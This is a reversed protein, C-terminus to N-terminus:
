NFISALISHATDSDIDNLVGSKLLTEAAKLKRDYPRTTMQYMHYDELKKPMLKSRTSRRPVPTPPKRPLFSAAAIDDTDEPAEKRISKTAERTKSLIEPEAVRGEDELPELPESIVVDDLSEDVHTDSIVIKDVSVDARTDPHSEITGSKVDIVEVIDVIDEIGEVIGGPDHERGDTVKEVSIDEGVKGDEVSGTGIALHADGDLNTTVVFDDECDCQEDEEETVDSEDEVIDNAVKGEDIPADQICKKVNKEQKSTITEEAVLGDHNEIVFLLNRHLTRVKDGLRIKFVPIEPIPQEEVTYVEEEYRDEIKHKGDFAMRRVLVKDGIVINVAKAKRDYFKKQKSKSKETHERVIERTKQMRQQLDKLFERTAKNGSTEQRASEFVSDIPLKPRRGFMLEYPAIKTTEHPTSNYAFTLSSVYKKWNEKQSSELTGLMDLLTRNFREPGANGQPHYPTTRSKEMNTLKCLEKIIESEFNAGQDSHIRTPIGYNVIFQNYFVEATTKATQNKTPIALAYKTYHDTIVLINGIGRAPELTLFDMCVLQLPYTTTVSHLPARQSIKAKRRLCRNCKKVHQEIDALMGPWFFRERVLRTTREVGPHGVDDHIGKLVEAKYVDPLVLQEIDRENEHIKRFLIGRKMVFNNFNRKMTLHEKKLFQKPLAKDIVAIRWTEILPDRRQAKRIEIWDKQALVQGQEEFMEVINMSAAPLVEIYTPRVMCSCVAKVSKDDMKVRHGEEQETDIRVRSEEEQESYPYRSLGDGDANKLGPRYFIDFSYEGLASAWRQGTADLKASTLIYTLPNNDTLVTFHTGVLYDSFKETVAWKLALFELKFASYNKESKSLARSAFAIVRKKGDQEQYLVAGLAKTSADTHIEFPKTFDPYALIPATTLMEKVKDFINQHVDDWHWDEKSKQKQKTKQTTPILLESLPRIIRSFNKIFRRYYGAFALFSRLEDSDKPTPWNKVKDIKEPDTSIGESSVIHGLFKVEPQFFFCKEPALKLNCSKLRELVMNLRELHQEFTDSFIIVDDLYILCITMNLNGLCDQMLRQYTAPANCLGFPMKNYEFFGISGVTFATREKHSEEVEVQHYGSKMDLTSFYKAGHLCDFIEEMRPLAYSDKITRENLMRYDVCLRLKGNKKRVLVVNSTFPSKSPRIVGAALLQEIHQRVDEILSPPIKRHRQKFPTPDLLNIRHKIANCIGIDTDDTSFMDKHQRLMERLQEQQATDLVKQEDINLKQFVEEMKQDKEINDFVEDTVVVPQLECLICKPSIVITSTTLNSLNVKLEDNRRYKYQIVAPTVDIFDPINSDSTEQLIATTTPYDLEKDVIGPIDISENPHLIIKEAVASRVVALRNNNRKLEKDRLVISRFSLYWPTHLEAKHLFTDGFNIKCENLLEHLINTGLIVPTKESFQTDPTVLLLCSQPKSNPLGSNVTIEAEIYGRYPLSNGDACEINLVDGIPNIPENSLHEKYFAESVVSVCSGTDLLANVPIKNLHIEVESTSGVLKPDQKETGSDLGGVSASVQKPM